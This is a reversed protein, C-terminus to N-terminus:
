KWGNDVMLKLAPKLQKALGSISVGDPVLAGYDKLKESSGYGILPYEFTSRALAASGRRSTLYEVLRVSEALNKASKAIGVASINVHAPVPMTLAVDRTLEADRAGNGGAQMRALYYHNVVAVGCHGQAVARILSTDSSYFPQSVNAIMGRIWRKASAQGYLAIQDAVLSQNYVNERKRLCLEGRLRPSALDSYQRILDSDVRQPNSVIARVRRTVGFWRGAPDRYDSPVQSRLLESRLPRLLDQDAASQIRAADVLIIVDANSRDGERKLREVLSVGKAELLRVRIGTEKTFAKYVKRDSNYHRGSYVRVESARSAVPSAVVLAILALMYQRM